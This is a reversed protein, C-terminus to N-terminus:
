ISKRRSVSYRCLARFETDPAAARQILPPLAPHRRLVCCLGVYSDLALWVPANRPLEADCPPFQVLQQSGPISRLEAATYAERSAHRRRESVQLMRKVTIVRM